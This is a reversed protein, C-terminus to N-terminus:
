NTVLRMTLWEEVMRENSLRPASARKTPTRQTAGDYRFALEGPRITLNCRYWYVQFAAPMQVTKFERRGLAYDTLSHQTM